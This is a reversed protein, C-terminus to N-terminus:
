RDLHIVDGSILMIRWMMLFGFEIIAKNNILVIEYNKLLHGGRLREEFSKGSVTSIM